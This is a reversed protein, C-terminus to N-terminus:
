AAPRLIAVWAGGDELPETRWRLGREDLAKLLPMSPSATLVELAQGPELADAARLARRMPEPMTLGRLDLRNVSVGRLATAIAVVLTRM